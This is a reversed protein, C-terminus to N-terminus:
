EGGKRKFREKHRTFQSNIDDLLQGYQEACWFAKESENNVSCFHDPLHIIQLESM